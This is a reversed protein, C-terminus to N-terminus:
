YHFSSPHRIRTEDQAKRLGQRELDRESIQTPIWINTCIM